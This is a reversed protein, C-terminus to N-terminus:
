IAVNSDSRNKKRRWAEKDEGWESLSFCLLPFHTSGVSLILGGHFRGGHHTCSTVMLTVTGPFLEGILTVRNPSSADGCTVQRLNGLEPTPVSSKYLLLESNM